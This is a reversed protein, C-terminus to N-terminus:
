CEHLFVAQACSLDQHCHRCGWLLFTRVRSGLHVVRMWVHMAMSLTHTACGLQGSVSRREESCHFCRHVLVFSVRCELRFWSPVLWMLLSTNAGQRALTWYRYKSSGSAQNGNQVVLAMERAADAPTLPEAVKPRIPRWQDERRREKSGVDKCCRGTSAPEYVLM